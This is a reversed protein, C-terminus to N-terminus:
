LYDKINQLMEEQRKHSVHRADRGTAGTLHSFEGVSPEFKVVKVRTTDTGDSFTIYSGAIMEVIGAKIDAELQRNIYDMKDRYDNYYYSIMAMLAMIALILAVGLWYFSDM